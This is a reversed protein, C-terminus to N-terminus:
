YITTGSFVSVSTTYYALYIVLIPQLIIAAVVLTLISKKTSISKKTLIRREDINGGEYDSFERWLAVLEVCIM